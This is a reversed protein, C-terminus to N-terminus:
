RDAAVRCDECVGRFIVQAEDIEGVSVDPRLCPKHGEMCPVDIITGCRRCVFHHHWVDAIEYVARGPGHDAVMVLGAAVVDGLVKYVTGRTLPMGRRRLAEVVDDASCHGQQGDLTELVLLRPRTVRLGADRLRGEWTDREIDTRSAVM